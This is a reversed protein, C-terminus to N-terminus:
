LKISFRNEMTIMIHDPVDHVSKNGHRNEVILSIFEAGYDEAMDQYVKVEKETTSTNSVIVNFGNALYLKTREQCWAHAQKIHLPEFNYKGTSDIFFQDAEIFPIGMSCSLACAFTSKGAGPLGRLLILKM